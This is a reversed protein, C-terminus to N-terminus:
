MLVPKSVQKVPAPVREPPNTPPVDPSNSQSITAVPAVAIVVNPPATGTEIPSIGVERMLATYEATGDAGITSFASAIEDVQERAQEAIAVYNDTRNYMQIFSEDGDTTSRELTRLTKETMARMSAMHQAEELQHLLNGCASLKIKCRKFTELERLFSPDMQDKNADNYADLVRQKCVALWIISHRVDDRGDKVASALRQADTVIEASSSTM